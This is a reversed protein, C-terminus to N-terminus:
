FDEIFTEIYKKIKESVGEAISKREKLSPRFNMAEILNDRLPEKESFLYNGILKQIKEFDLDEEETM